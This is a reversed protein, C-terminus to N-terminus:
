LNNSIAYIWNEPVLPHVSNGIFKKQDTQTGYLEYDNPFGQIKLLEPIKLMRMKIDIIGYAAMFKKIKIMPESDTEDVQIAINGCETTVIYPPAKDMRAILTFYPKDVSGNGELRDM